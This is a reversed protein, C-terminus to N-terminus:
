GKLRWGSRRIPGEDRSSLLFTRLLPIETSSEPDVHSHVKPYSGPGLWHAEIIGWSSSTKGTCDDKIREM